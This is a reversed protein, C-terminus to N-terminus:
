QSYTYFDAVQGIGPSVQGAYALKRDRGYLKVRTELM